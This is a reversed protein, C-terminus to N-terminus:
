PGPHISFLPPSYHARCLELYFTSHLTPPSLPPSSSALKLCLTSPKRYFAAKILYYLFTLLYLWLNLGLEAIESAPLLKAYYKVERLRLKRVQYVYAREAIIIQRPTPSLM